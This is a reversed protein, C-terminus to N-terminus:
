FLTPASDLSTRGLLDEKDKGSQVIRMANPDFSKGLAFAEKTSGSLWTEFDAENTLLVPMREHNISDTLANPTTTMFSYVDLEVCPGDKKIPGKWREWIGPFAFLEREHEGDVAFWFWKAPKEGNPECYSSAPVLCRRKEFSPRWYRNTQIQDDRVNTVRKPAYGPQLRVFGWSMQVLEREGDTAKRIVRATYGPFISPQPDVRTARNDSIRFLQRIAEVNRTQSYLNCM